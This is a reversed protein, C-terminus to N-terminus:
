QSRTHPIPTLNTITAKTETVAQLGGNYYVTYGIVQKDDTSANWTLSVSTSTKATVAVNTPM